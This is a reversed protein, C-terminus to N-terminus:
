DHKNCVDYEIIIKKSQKGSSNSCTVYDIHGGQREILSGLADIHVKIPDQEVIVKAAEPTLDNFVKNEPELNGHM